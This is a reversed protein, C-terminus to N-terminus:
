QRGELFPKIETLLQEPAEEIVLHGAEPIRVLRAGPILGALEEGRGVPIWSDEEGWLILTPIDITGYLPSVEETFREDAQAIQRYFAAQSEAGLWPEVTAVLVDDPLGRHAASRIYAEVLARHLHPPLGQFAALHERIHRLTESGWPSLAVPDILVVKSWVPGELLHCRLITTGGYDHGIAMPAELEWHTLLERLLQNQVGLSVDEAKKDSRGYGLLDYFYVSYRESLGFILHRLNLSSWPTGHVIVLPPGAGARGYRVTQGRWQYEQSLEPRAITSM